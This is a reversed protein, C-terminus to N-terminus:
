SASARESLLNAVRFALDVSQRGNLRPDCRTAYHRDLDGERLAEGGGLCETVDDGTLEVHLGGPWVAESACAAFFADVEAVIDEFNRTKRGNATQVTNAHMPDCAWVVPHGADRVAALIPPLVDPLRKAGMRSIFTLRGPNRDPNLRECLELVEGVTATPGLKCGIPNAIGSVFEIHAGDLARTREGVWVTHASTDVWEGTQEDRRTMAEEYGLLLAEHSTWVDVRNMETSDRGIRSAHLFRVAGDIERAVADYREGAPSSAVFDRNWEHVRDLSGFGGSSLSRVLNLKSASHYYATLMRRPDPVRRAPDAEISNVIDGRYVPLEVGDITEVAASRPKAFQGALRAVKVIHSGSAYTLVIAMQLIVRLRNEVAQATLEDFSEACDGAQLLFARGAAVEALEDTLTRVEGGFVLPPMVRLEALTHELAAENPWEPQQVVPLGHWSSPSWRADHARMPQSAYWRTPNLLRRSEGQLLRFCVEPHSTLFQRLREAELLVYRVPGLAVLDGSIPEGLLASIEGFIEGRALRTHERGNIRVAAQGDILFGLGVSTEGQTLVHEGAAAAHGGFQSAIARLDAEPLDGVLRSTRLASVVEDFQADVTV